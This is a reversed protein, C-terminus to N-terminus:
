SLAWSLGTKVLLFGTWAGFVWGLARGRRLRRGAAALGTAFLFLCWLTFLDLSRGLSVLWAASNAPDFLAGLNSALPNDLYFDAPEKLFMIVVAAPYFLAFPLYGYCTVSFITRFPLQQGALVNFVFVWIAATLLALVPWSFLGLGYSSYPVIRLQSDLIQEQQEPSMQQLRPNTEMQQQFFTEWGVQQQFAFLFALSLATLILLPVWWRHPRAAIDAFAEKPEFLAGILRDVESLPKGRSTDEPGGPEVINEAPVAHTM